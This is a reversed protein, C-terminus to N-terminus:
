YSRWLRMKKSGQSHTWNNPSVNIRNVMELRFSISPTELAASKLAHAVGGM